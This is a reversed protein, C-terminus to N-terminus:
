YAKGWYVTKKAPKGCCACVESLQEQEFPMCRSTVGAEDKLKMECALEGCWMAKILGPKNDAIEKLEAFDTATYTMSQRRALAKEYLGDHVA